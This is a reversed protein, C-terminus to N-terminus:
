HSEVFKWGVGFADGLLLYDEMAYELPIVNETWPIRVSLIHEDKYNTMSVRSSSAYIIGDSGFDHLSASEVIVSALSDTPSLSFRRSRVIKASLNRYGTSEIVYWFGKIVWGPSIEKGDRDKAPLQIEADCNSVGKSGECKGKVKLWSVVEDTRKFIGPVLKEAGWSAEVSVLILSILAISVVTHRNFSSM